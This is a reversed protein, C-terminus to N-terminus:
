HARRKRAASRASLGQVVPATPRREQQALFEQVHKETFRRSRGVVEHSIRGAKAERAVWAESKGLARAVEAASYTVPLSM